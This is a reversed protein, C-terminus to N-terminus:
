VSYCVTHVNRNEYPYRIAFRTVAFIYRTVVGDIIIKYCHIKYQLRNGGLNM